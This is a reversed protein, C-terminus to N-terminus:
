CSGRPTYYSEDLKFENTEGVRTFGSNGVIYSQPLFTVDDGHRYTIDKNIVGDGCLNVSPMELKYQKGNYNWSCDLPIKHRVPTEKKFVLALHDKIIQTELENLSRPNSIELCGQLWYCFNEPTM